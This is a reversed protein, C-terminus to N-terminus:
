IETIKDGVLTYQKEACIDALSQGELLPRSLFENPNGNDRGDPYDCLGWDQANREVYKPGFHNVAAFFGAAAAGSM